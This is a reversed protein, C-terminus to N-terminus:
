SVQKDDKYTEEWNRFGQADWRKWVGERKGDKYQGMASIKGNTYWGIHEGDELGNKYHDISKKQGNDYWLTWEGDQKGDHYEGKMMLPGESRYLLFPGEKVPQGDVMKQCWLEEGNPPAEGMKQTGDPCAFPASDGGSRCAGLLLMPTILLIVKVLKRM